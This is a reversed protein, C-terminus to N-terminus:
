LHKHLIQKLTMQIFLSQTEVEYKGIHSMQFTKYIRLSSKENLFM